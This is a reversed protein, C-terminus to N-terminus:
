RQKPCIIFALGFSVSFFGLLENKIGHNRQRSNKLLPKTVIVMEQVQM